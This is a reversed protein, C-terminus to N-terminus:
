LKTLALYGSVFDLFFFIISLAAINLNFASTDTCQCAWHWAFHSLRQLAHWCEDPIMISGINGSERNSVKVLLGPLGNTLIFQGFSLLIHSMTNRWRCCIKKLVTMSPNKLYFILALCSVGYNKFAFRQDICRSMNLMSQLQFLKVKCLKQEISMSCSM